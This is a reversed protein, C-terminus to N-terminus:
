VVVPLYIRFLNLTKHFLCNNLSILVFIRGRVHVTMDYHHFRLPNTIASGVFATNKVM